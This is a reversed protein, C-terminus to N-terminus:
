KKLGAELSRHSISTRFTAQGWKQRQCSPCFFTSRGGVRVRRIEKGCRRCPEGERGYVKHFRQFDGAEGDPDTYDRISSGRREIASRLISRMARWLRRLDDKTLASPRTEPHLRSRFLIEDAYINGIGAIVKQNLLLSKLRGNRRGILASFGDRGIELPEPGLGALEPVPYAGGGGLCAVFGFKRVDHFRLEQARDKFRLIFHTHKDRPLSQLCILIRGTMKLHFLLSCDEECDVLIMKGRRRVRLIKKGTLGELGYPSRNRLLRPWFVDGSSIVRGRLSADLSRRVTEVEPLEPM